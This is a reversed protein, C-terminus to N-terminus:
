FFVSLILVQRRISLHPFKMQVPLDSVDYKILVKCLDFSPLSHRHIHQYLYVCACFINKEKM